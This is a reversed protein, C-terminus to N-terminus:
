LRLVSERKMDRDHEEDTVQAVFEANGASLQEELRDALEEDDLDDADRLSVRWTEIIIGRCEAEFEFVAAGDAKRTPTDKSHM